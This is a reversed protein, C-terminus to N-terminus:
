MTEEILRVAKALGDEARIAAGLRAANARLEETGTAEVLAAALGEATLEARPIPLPGVGLEHVRQGWFTQDIVHPIVVAPVGARLTSATTGFGGHHVVAAVHQFLWSHPLPGAHYVGPPLRTGELAADWGQVLARVGAREVADLVLASSRRADAGGGLSMAGLAFAVPAEGGELFARLEEPPTWGTPEDLFWYGTLRHQPGWRPDPPVVLPSIPILNLRPSMMEEVNAVTPAGIRRRLRNYPRVMMIGMAQGLLIGAARRLLPQSPEPTPIAQHQLTVSVTPKGLKAAEASGTFSHSVVVLDADESLALVDPSAARVISVTFQMTRLFGLVWNRSRRRIDAAVKGIDVDPGIPAFTIAHREVLDRMSPHSALTVEHGADQLGSALTIYPQVDGRTGITSIVVKM